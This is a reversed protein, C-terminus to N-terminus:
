EPYSKADVELLSEVYKKKGDDIYRAKLIKGRQKEVDNSQHNVYNGKGVFTKYSKKLEGETFSDGNTNIGVQVAHVSVYLMGEQKTFKYFEEDPESKFIGHKLGSEAQIGNSLIDNNIIICSAKKYFM